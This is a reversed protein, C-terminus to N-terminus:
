ANPKRGMHAWEPRIISAGKDALSESFGKERLWTKVSSNAPHTRPDNKDANAWWKLAAQELIALRDSRYERSGHPQRRLRQAQLEDPMLGYRKLCEVHEAKMFLLHRESLQPAKDSADGNNIWNTGDEDVELCDAFISHGMTLMHAAGCPSIMAFYKPYHSAGSTEIWEGIENLKMPIASIAGQVLGYIDIKMEICAVLLETEDTLLLEAAKALTVFTTKIM